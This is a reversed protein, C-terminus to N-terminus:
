ESRERGGENIRIHISHRGMDYLERERESARELSVLAFSM